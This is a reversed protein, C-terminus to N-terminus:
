TEKEGRALRVYKFYVNELTPSVIRAEYVDHGAGVIKKLLAPMEEESSLDARWWGDSGRDFGELEDGDKLRLVARRHMSANRGLTELDGVGLLTGRELIGYHRCIDQAYRLQHTCLFVTVGESRALDAIMGNVGRAAEPDLGSTPEDLLLIKPRHILARALSLRQAMGTSYERLRKDRADWLDMRKLLEESRSHAEDSPLEATRAFFLLNERGTMQGYMRAGDTVVGCVRHVERFKKVPSFGGVTCSGGTPALLGTLLRVTTTKGAGNPGLFGFVDGAPVDLTLDQLAAVSGGYIKTLGEAHIATEAM